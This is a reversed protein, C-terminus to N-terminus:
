LKYGIFVPQPTSFRRVTEAGTTHLYASMEAAEENM